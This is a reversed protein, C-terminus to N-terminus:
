NNFFLFANVPQYYADLDKRYRAEGTLSWLSAAANFLQQEPPKTNYYLQCPQMCLEKNLWSSGHSILGDSVFPM